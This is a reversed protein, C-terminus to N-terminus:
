AEHNVGVAAIMKKLGDIGKIKHPLLAMRRKSMLNIVMPVQGLIKLPNTRLYYMGVLLAEANRGYRSVVESFSRVM